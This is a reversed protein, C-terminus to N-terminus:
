MCVDTMTAQDNAKNLENPNFNHTHTHMHMHMHMHTHTHLTHSLSVKQESEAILHEILQASAIANISRRFCVRVYACVLVCVCVCVCVCRSLYLSLVPCFDCQTWLSLFLSFLSVCPLLSGTVCVCECVCVCVCVCVGRACVYMCLSLARAFLYVAVWGSFRSRLPPDLPFGPFMPV